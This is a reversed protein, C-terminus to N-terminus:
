HRKKKENNMINNLTKKSFINLNFYNGTTPLLKNKLKFTWNYFILVVILINFIETCRKEKRENNKM